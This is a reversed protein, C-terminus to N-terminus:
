SPASPTGGGAAGGSAPLLLLEHLEYRKLCAPAVASFVAAAADGDPYATAATPAGAARLEAVAGEFHRTERLVLAGGAGGGGGATSGGGGAAAGAAAAAAAAEARGAADFRCFLRTERLRVLTGDVRLFFRLLALWCRPMVRVKVSLACAGNDDLESEYLPVDAFLLIPEDRSVLLARDAVRRTPLWRPVAAAPADGDAVDGGDSGGAEAAGGGGAGGNAVAADGTATGGSGSSNSGPPLAVASLGASAAAEAAAHVAAATRPNQPEMTLSTCIERAAATSSASGTAKAGAATATVTTTGLYPTTYTWDYEIVAAQQRAIEERRAAQWQQAATVRLPPLDERRWAELADLARFSLEVGSPLHTLTLGSDGFLIEPLTLVGGLARSAAEVAADGVIPAKVARVRWQGAITIGGGDADLEYPGSAAAM